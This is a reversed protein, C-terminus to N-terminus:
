GAITYQVRKIPASVRCGPRFLPNSHRGDDRLIATGPRYFTQSNLSKRGGDFNCVMTKKESAGDGDYRSLQMLVM